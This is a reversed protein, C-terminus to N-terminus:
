LKEVKGIINNIDDIKNEILYNELGDIIEACGKPNAFSYVGIAVATAGALMFEVVDEVSSAGGMGIIPVKVSNYVQWVMRLAVPKIAPGSLGGTVNALQFKRTKADISTSLITNILSIADSGAKEAAKAIITIDTVNPTLKTIIPLNTAKRVAKVIEGTAAPDAGFQSGGKKVNPCSVNIEIGDIKGTESLRKTMEAYEGASTASINAILPTDIKEYKDLNEIFHNLGKNQIGIANLMGSPTEIIRPPPNGERPNLTVTKPIFAGLKSLDFFDAHGLGFTGSAVTIPNKMKIGALNVKLNLKM